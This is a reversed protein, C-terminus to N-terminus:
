IEDRTKANYNKVIQEAARIEDPTDFDINNPDYPMADKEAVIKKFGPLDIKEMIAERQAPKFLVLFTELSQIITKPNSIISKPAGKGKNQAVVSRYTQYTAKMNEMMRTSIFAQSQARISDDLIAERLKILFIFIFLMGRMLNMENEYNYFVKYMSGVFRDQLSLDQKFNAEYDPDITNLPVNGTAVIFLNGLPLVENKGNMITPASIINGNDDRKYAKIKALADNLIGATNPDIKPLEDLLLICGDYYVTKGDVKERNSWAISLKGEQYGEITQGGIIDLPSTYQNCNITILKWQLLDALQGCIYTKGTGAAGYLYSNNKAEVDSLLLQMLKSSINSTQKILKNTVTTGTNISLNINSPVKLTELYARLSDSLDDISIKRLKLEKNIRERIDADSAGSKSLIARLSEVLGALVPDAAGEMAEAAVVVQAAGVARLADLQKKATAVIAPDKSTKIIQELKQIKDSM